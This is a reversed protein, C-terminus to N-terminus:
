TAGALVSLVFNLVVYSLFIAALGLIAWLLTDRGKKIKDTNGASTLWLFGGWIVFILAVVGAAALFAEIIRGFLTPAWASLPVGKLGPIPNDLTVDQAAAINLFSFIFFVLFLFLTSISKTIRYSSM